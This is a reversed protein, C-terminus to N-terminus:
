QQAPNAIGDPLPMADDAQGSGTPIANKEEIVGLSIETALRLEAVNTIITINPTDKTPMKALIRALTEQDVYLLLEPAWDQLRVTHIKPARRSSQTWGRAIAGNAGTLKSVHLQNGEEALFYGFTALLNSEIKTIEDKGLFAVDTM